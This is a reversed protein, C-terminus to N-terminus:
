RGPGIIFAPFGDKSAEKFGAAQGRFVCDHHKRYPTTISFAIDADIDYPSDIHGLRASGLDEADNTAVRAMRGTMSIDNHDHRHHLGGPNGRKGFSELSNDPMPEDTVRNQLLMFRLPSKRM